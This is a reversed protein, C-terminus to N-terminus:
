SLVSEIAARLATALRVAQEQDKPHISVSIDLKTSERGSPYDSVLVQWFVPKDQYAEAQPFAHHTGQSWGEEGTLAEIDAVYHALFHERRLKRLLAELREVDALNLLVTAKVKDPPEPFRAPDMRHMAGANLDDAERVDLWLCPHDGSSETVTVGGGYEGLIENYRFGRQTTQLEPESM